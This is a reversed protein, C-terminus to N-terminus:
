RVLAFAHRLAAGAEDIAERGAGILDPMSFFGHFVGDFRSLQVDVGAGRMRRAYEEGEDRLPDFEATIVLAPPLKAVDALLPSLRPDAFDSWSGLYHGRFWYMGEATLFYGEANDVMSRHMAGPGFTCDTIPYVLLQFCATPGGEDRVLAAAVTALNAGASDGGVAVRDADVGLDAPHTLVYRLADVSDDHAAPFRHEPALRYGVSVVVAGSRNALMRCVHDHSDLNGLVWGGGHFYVLAPLREGASPRYVRVPIPGDRGPVTRDTIENVDEIEGDYRRKARAARAQEPTTEHLPPEGLAAMADLVARADVSLPM